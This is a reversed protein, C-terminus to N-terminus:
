LLSALDFVSGPAGTFSGSFSGWSQGSGPRIDAQWKWSTNSLDSWLPAIIRVNKIGDYSLEGDSDFTATFPALAIFQTLSIIRIPKTITPSLTVTGVVPIYDPVGSADSSDALGLIGQATVTLWGVDIDAVPGFVYLLQSSIEDIEEDSDIFTPLILSVSSADIEEVTLLSGGARAVVEAANGPVAVTSGATSVSSGAAFVPTVRLVRLFPTSPQWEWLTGVNVM